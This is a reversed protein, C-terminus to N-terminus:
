LADVQKTTEFLSASHTAAARRALFIFFATFGSLVLLVVGLLAFVGWAL